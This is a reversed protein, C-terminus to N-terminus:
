RRGAKQRLADAFRIAAAVARYHEPAIQQGIEVTAFVARATPPDSHIAVGNELGIERIRRAIEDVGKAVCEPASGPLRSWKLAVAYHTPNVIIVDATPVAEMMRRSAIEQAKQRRSNKLQPDGESEKHEDRLERFSMRNKRRHAHWQWLYDIAGTFLAVILVVFLFEVSLRALMSVVIAPSTQLSASMEEFRFRLFLFLAVSYIVLKFFSKAFEFLGDRGFKNKANSLPSIRSLKPSVKSPTVLFARQGIMVLIVLMAPIIFWAAVSSGTVKLLSLVPVHAPGEFFGDSWEDARGILSSLATGLREVGTMGTALLALLFGGYASAVSLDQSRAIEGKKRAEDLKRQTPEHSKEADDDTSSM